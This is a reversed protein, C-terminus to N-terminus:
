EAVGMAQATRCPWVEPKGAEDNCTCCRVLIRGTLFTYSETRHLALVAERQEGLVAATHALDLVANRKVQSLTDWGLAGVLAPGLARAEDPPVMRPGSQTM